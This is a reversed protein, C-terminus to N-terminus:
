VEMVEVEKHKLLEDVRQIHQDTLKQVEDQERRAEDESLEGDKQRHKIEDNADKRAQRVAIRGEEALKHLLRVYEKRREETLAPIPVRILQGDNSPNLGLDSDRIAREIPQMLSRDWPQVVLMRPEPASVSAVQNLPMHSGYAEVRVIDLLQPSAKGTRVGTFERRMAEVAKEMRQRAAQLSPM